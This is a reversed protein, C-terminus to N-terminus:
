NLNYHSHRTQEGRSLMCIQSHQATCSRCLPTALQAKLPDVHSVSSLRLSWVSSSSDAKFDNLLISLMQHSRVGQFSVGTLFCPARHATLEWAPESSATTSRTENSNNLQRALLCKIVKRHTLLAQEQQLACRSSHQGSISRSALFHLLYVM